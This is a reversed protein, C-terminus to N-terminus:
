RDKLGIRQLLNEFRPDERLEDIWPHIKSYILWYDREEIAKDMWEFATDKEDLVGYLIAIFHAPVFNQKALNLLEDLIERTKDKRGSSAYARGLVTIAMLNGSSKDIVHNLEVIANDFMGAQEYNWGLYLRAPLYTPDLELVSQCKQIGTTYDRAMFAVFGEISSIIKSLPDLERAKGIEIKAEEFRGMASLFEAYWQHATAYNPNLELAKKFIKEAEDMDWDNFLWIMDGRNIIDDSQEDIYAFYCGEWQQPYGASDTDVFSPLIM